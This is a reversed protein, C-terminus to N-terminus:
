ISALSRKVINRDSFPHQVGNIEQYDEHGKGAILVTDTAAARTIVSSIAQTRDAIVEVKQSQCGALIDAIIDASQEFRPNDDTVIIRDAWQEAIKGMEARKGADRNGGCGFVLWLTQDSHQRLSSLAKELADPTHAYDVFVKPKGAGGFQEMRGDVPKLQALKGVATEFRMRMALAVALVCLANAINFDGYLPLLVNASQERWCVTFEIGGTQHIINKAKLNEGQAQLGKDTQSIGWVIVNEPVATLIREAYSDDMNIVAFQLGPKTLLKLKAKLYAEMTGHYDLHDRSINTFVAGKFVVGNVRGQDLGHSSVEMAVTRKQQAALAALMSQVALADPTTNVTKHLEGWSGWGLTGIIGCADLMQSLFQSCSTKGNTGTIGIVDLQQSPQGYFRAAMEGLHDGLQEIALLPIAQTNAFSDALEKGDKSPDFLVAVAGNEIAQQLHALGHQNAGALAIFVHGKKVKRSDLALGTVPLNAALPSLGDATTVPGTLLENLNM